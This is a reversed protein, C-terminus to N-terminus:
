INMRINIRASTNLPSASLRTTPIYIDTKVKAPTVLLLLAAVSAKLSILLTRNSMYYNILPLSKLFHGARFPRPM